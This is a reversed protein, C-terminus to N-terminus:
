SSTTYGSVTLTGKAGEVGPGLSVTLPENVRHSRRGYGPYDLAGAGHIFKKGVVVEGFKAVLLGSVLVDNYSADIKEIVHLRNVEAPRILVLETDPESEGVLTWGYFARDIESDFIVPM